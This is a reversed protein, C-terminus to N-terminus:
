FPLNLGKAPPPPRPAPLPPRLERHPRGRVRQSHSVPGAPPPPLVWAALPLAAEAGASRNKVGGPERQGQSTALM